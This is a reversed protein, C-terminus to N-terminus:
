GRSGLYRDYDDGLLSRLLATAPASSGANEGTGFVLRALQSLLYPHLGLDHLARFDRARIATREADTLDYGALVADEDAAFRDRLAPDWKLDQVFDNARLLPDFSELPM